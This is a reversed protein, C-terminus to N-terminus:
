VHNYKCMSIFYCCCYYYYYHIPKHLAATKPLHTRWRRFDTQIYKYCCPLRRQPSRRREGSEAQWVAVDYVRKKWLALHFGVSRVLKRWFCQMRLPARGEREREGEEVSLLLWSQVVSAPIQPVKELLFLLHPFVLM